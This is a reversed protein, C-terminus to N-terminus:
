AAQKQPFLERFPSAERPRGWNDCGWKEIFLKLNPRFDGSGRGRYSSSLSGHDVYCGDWIGLKLGAARVSFSFDDDDCGYNTFRSDLLGVKDITSRPILVCVFCVMRPEDRVAGGWGLQRHQSVNGVNNCTSAIVGYQPNNQAAGWLGTFGVPTELLADDNLLIVDDRGAAEIGLNMARSFIFPRIGDIYTPVDPRYRLGDDIVIVRDGHLGPENRWIADLCPQLNDVNKSPIIISFM